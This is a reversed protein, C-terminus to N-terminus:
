LLRLANNRNSTYAPNTYPCTKKELDKTIEEEQKRSLISSRSEEEDEDEQPRTSASSTRM